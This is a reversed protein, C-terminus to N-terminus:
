SCFNYSVSGSLVVVQALWVLLQTHKCKHTEMPGKTSDQTLKYEKKSNIMNWGTLVM